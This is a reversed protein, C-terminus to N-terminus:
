CCAIINISPPAYAFGVSVVKLAPSGLLFFSFLCIVIVSILIFAIYIVLTNEVNVTDIQLINLMYKMMYFHVPPSFLM